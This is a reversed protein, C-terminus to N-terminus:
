SRGNGSVRNNQQLFCSLREMRNNFVPSQKCQCGLGRYFICPFAPRGRLFFFSYWKSQIYQFMDSKIMQTAYGTYEYSKRIEKGDSKTIISKVRLGGVVSESSRYDYAYPVRNAEFEFVTSGGTPYIIEQLICAKMYYEEPNRDASYNGINSYERPIFNASERGTYYGWYDDRCRIETVTHYFNKYDPLNVSNYKFQYKEGSASASEGSVTIDDLRMRYSKASNGWYSKNNFIVNRVTASGNYVSINDLRDKYKDLRDSSYNFKIKNDAWTIEDVVIPNYTIIERLYEAKTELFDNTHFKPNFDYDYSIGRSVKQSTVYESYSNM